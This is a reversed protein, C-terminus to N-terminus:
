DSPAETLDWLRVADDMGASALTRGDPSFAISCIGSRHGVLTVRETTTAVDWLKITEDGSCTALTKGDASFAVCRVGGHYGRLVAREKRTVIDWLRATWGASATALTRGDASMAVALVGDRNAGRWQPWDQAQVSAALWHIAVVFAAQTSRTLLRKNLSRGIFTM